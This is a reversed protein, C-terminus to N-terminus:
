FCKTCLRGGAPVTSVRVFQKPYPKGDKLRGDGADLHYKDSFTNHIIEGVLGSDTDPDFDDSSAVPSASSVTSSGSSSAEASGRAVFLGAPDDASEGAAPAVASVAAESDSAEM